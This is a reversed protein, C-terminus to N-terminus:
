KGHGMQSNESMLPPQMIHPLMMQIYRSGCEPSMEASIAYIHGLMARRCDEQVEMCEKLATAIEPTMTQSSGAVKQFRENAKAVRACLKMCTPNYNQHLAQIKLFQEDNLQFEHRLWAMEGGSNQLLSHPVRTATHLFVWHAFIAAGIIAALILLSKKM